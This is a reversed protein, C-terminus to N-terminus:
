NGGNAVVNFVEPTPANTTGQLLANPQIEAPQPHLKKLKVIVEETPKMVLNETNDDLFKLAPSIKGELILKSFVRSVDEQSRKKSTTLKKQITRCERLIVDFNGHIWHQLRTELAKTHDKAKSSASPKQLLLGPLIM